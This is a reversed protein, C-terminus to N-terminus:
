RPLCHSVSSCTLVCTADLTCFFIATKAIVLVFLGSLVFSRVTHVELQVLYTARLLMLVTATVQPKACDVM